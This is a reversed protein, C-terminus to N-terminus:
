SCLSERSGREQNEQTHQTHIHTLTNERSSTSTQLLFLHSLSVLLLYSSKLSTSCTCLTVRLLEQSTKEETGRLRGGSGIQMVCTDRNRLHELQYRFAEKRFAKVWFCMVMSCGDLLLLQNNQLHRPGNKFTCIM